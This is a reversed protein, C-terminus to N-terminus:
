LDNNSNNILEIDALCLDELIQFTPLERHDLDCHNKECYTIFKHNGAGLVGQPEKQVFSIPDYSTRLNPVFKLEYSLLHWRFNKCVIYCLLNRPCLIM